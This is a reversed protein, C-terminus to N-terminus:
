ESVFKWEVNEWGAKKRLKGRMDAGDLPKCVGEGWQAPRMPPVQITKGQQDIIEYGLVLVTLTGLNEAFAFNRGPCLHKGGGFPFFSRKQMKDEEIAAESTIGKAQPTLFRKGDFEKFTPGWAEVSMHNVSVPIQVNCGEKLLYSHEGDSIVTDAMVRRNDVGGNGVRLTERYSSVLLPCKQELHSINVTIEKRDSRVEEKVVTLVEKRLQEVLEPRSFINLVLWFLTPITNTTSVHALALEINGFQDKPIGYKRLMAVRVKTIQAVDPALDQELSYYECLAKQAM